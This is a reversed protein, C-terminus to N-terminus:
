LFFLNKLKITTCVWMEGSSMDDRDPYKFNLFVRLYDSLRIAQYFYFANIFVMITNYIFMLGRLQYAKRDRMWAPGIKTVLLYYTYMVLGITWPQVDVFPLHKTRPDQIENWYGYLYYTCHYLASTSM